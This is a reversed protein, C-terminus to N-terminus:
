GSNPVFVPPELSPNARHESQEPEIKVAPDINSTGTRDAPDPLSRSLRSRRRFCPVDGSDSGQACTKPGFCSQEFNLDSVPSGGYEVDQLPGGESVGLGLRDGVPVAGM